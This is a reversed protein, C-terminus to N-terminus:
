KNLITDIHDVTFSERLTSLNIQINNLDKKFFESNNQIIKINKKQLAILTILKKLYQCRVHAKKPDFGCTNVLKRITIDLSGSIKKEINLNTTIINKMNKSIPYFKNKLM